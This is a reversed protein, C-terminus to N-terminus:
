DLVAGGQTAFVYPTVSIFNVALGVRRNAERYQVISNSGLHMSSRALARLRNRFSTRKLDDVTVIRDPDNARLFAGLDRGAGLLTTLHAEELKGYNAGGDAVFRNWLWEAVERVEFDEDELSDPMVIDWEKIWEQEVGNVDEYVRRTASLRFPTDVVSNYAAKFIGASGAADLGTQGGFVNHAPKFVDAGEATMQVRPSFTATHNDANSVTNLNHMTLNRDFANRFKVTSPSHFATSIAYTRLFALLEKTRMANWTGRIAAVKEDDLRDDAFHQVIAVPLSDLSEPHELALSSLASLKEKANAGDIVTNLIELPARHHRNINNVTRGLPDVHNTFDITDLWWQFEATTGYLNPAKDLLMGTLTRATNEITVNEHYDRDETDGQIGFFLQHFERAFDDNGIFIGRRNDFRNRFHGYQRAIAASYAGGALVQDFPTRAQLLDVSDDYLRRILTPEVQQLSVAMRYNTLWLGVRHRFPNLGKNLVANVWTHQLGIDYLRVDGNALERTVGYSARRSPRIPNSRLNSSWWEQLSQLSRGRFTTQDFETPSLRGNIHGFRLMQSIARRPTAAAWEAIQEDSASGGYAFVHLVRRVATEDWAADPVAQLRAAAAPTAAGLATIVGLAAVFARIAPSKGSPKAGSFARKLRVRHWLLSHQVEDEISPCIGM